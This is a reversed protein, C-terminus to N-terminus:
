ASANKWFSLAIMDIELRRLTGRATSERWSSLRNAHWERALKEFTNSATESALRAKEKKAQAPDIDDAVLKRVESRKQRAEALTTNPYQGFALRSEKGNSQRFKM